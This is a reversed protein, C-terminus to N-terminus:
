AWMLVSPLNESDILRLLQYGIGSVGLFFGPDYIDCLKRSFLYFGGASQSRKIIWAAQQQATQCLEPRSLRHAAELLFDMKGLNGCCLFDAGNMDFKQIVQASTEIEQRIEKNDLIGLNAIRTLGIGTFGYCWSAIRMNQSNEGQLWNKAQPHFVSQEYAIGEEAAELFFPIKTVAYLQLLAHIIGTVGHSFGIIVQEDITKWAQYKNNTLVRQKLLHEGCAIAQKLIGSDGTVNYLALLGLITGAVGAIVDLYEDTTIQEHSIFSAIDTAEEILVPEDILQSIRVFAYVLSGLGEAGGIGMDQAIKNFETGSLKQRLPQLIRLTLDRWEANKTVKALAAFFLAVGTTGSYFSYDLPQLKFRQATFVYRFGIWTVSGDEAYTARDKLDSAIAMVQELIEENSLAAITDLSIDKAEDANTSEHRVIHSYLSGKILQIQQQLDQNGLQRFRHNVVSLSDLPCCNKITETPSLILDKSDSLMTFYPVDLQEMAQLEYKLVQWFPHIKESTIFARSLVDFEISREIGDKLYKPALTKSLLFGYVRTDRFIFRLEQHKFKALPSDPALIAERRELLFQYMQAFGDVIEGTYDTLSLQVGDLLPVNKEVGITAYDYITNMRDSNINQWKPQRFPTQQNLTGGIASFDYATRGDPGFEWWPLLGIRLVSNAIQQNAKSIAGTSDNQEDDVQPRPQMLSEMDALVPYEGHAIVNENHCDTTDLAYLLCLLMGMRQYYNHAETPNNCPLQEVFEIWGYQSRDLIQLVKFSLPAGQQNLWDLFQTYAVEVGCDKPKYVLKIGSTFTLIFVSRGQQHPDSISCQIAVVEGLKGKNYFQHQILDWDTALRQIFEATANVWLELVTAALRALVSYEQFFELLQGQLLNEIFDLYKERGTKENKIQQFLTNLASQRFNRFINFELYLAQSCTSSLRKLLSRELCIHTTEALRSYANSDVQAILKQRAIEIFPLFLEEFPIPHQSDFCRDLLDSNRLNQIPFSATAELITKLTEAWSPVNASSPFKTAGLVPLVQALDLNQWALRKTFNTENGEAAIRCWSDLRTNALQKNIQTEDITWGSALREEITSSKNIIYNLSKELSKEM